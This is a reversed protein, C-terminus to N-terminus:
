VWGSTTRMIQKRTNQLYDARWWKVHVSAHTTPAARLKLQQFICRLRSRPATKVSSSPSSLNKRRSEISLTSKLAGEASMHSSKQARFYTATSQNQTCSTFAAYPLRTRVSDEAKSKGFRNYIGSITKRASTCSISRTLDIEETRAVKGESSWYGPSPANLTKTWYFSRVRSLVTKKFFYSCHNSTCNNCGDCGVHRSQAHRGMTILSGYFKIVCYKCM